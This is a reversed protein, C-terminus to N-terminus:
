IWHFRTIEQTLKQKDDTLIAAEDNAKLNSLEESLQKLLVSKDELQRECKDEVGRKEGETKELHAKLSALEEVMQSEGLGKEDLRLKLAAYKEEAEKRMVTASRLEERNQNAEEILIGLNSQENELAIVKEALQSKLGECKGESKNRSEAERTAEERLATVEKERADRERNAILANGAAEDITANLNPIEERLQKLLVSKVDL